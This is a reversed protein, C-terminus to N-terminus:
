PVVNIGRGDYARGSSPVINGALGRSTLDTGAPGADM